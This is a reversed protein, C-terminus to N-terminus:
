LEQLLTTWKDKKPNSNVSGTIYVDDDGYREKHMEKGAELSKKMRKYNDSDKGYKEEIYKLVEDSM